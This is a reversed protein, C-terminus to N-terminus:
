DRSRPFLVAIVGLTKAVGLSPLLYTPYGLHKFIAVADPVRLVDPLSAMLMFAAMLGTVIWYSVRLGRM